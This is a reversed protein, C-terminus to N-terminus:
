VFFVDFVYNKHSTPSTERRTVKWIGEERRKMTKM